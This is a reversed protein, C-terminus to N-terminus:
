PSSGPHDVFPRIIRVIRKALIMRVATAAIRM